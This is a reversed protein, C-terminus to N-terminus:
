NTMFTLVINYINVEIEKGTSNFYCMVNCKFFQIIKKMYYTTINYYNTTTYKM